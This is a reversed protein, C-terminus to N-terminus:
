ENCYGMVLRCCKLEHIRVRFITKIKNIMNKLGIMEILETTSLLVARVIEIEVPSGTEIYDSITLTTERPVVSFDSIIRNFIRDEYDPIKIKAYARPNFILQRITIGLKMKKFAAPFTEHRPSYM